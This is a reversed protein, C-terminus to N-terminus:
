NEGLDKPALGFLHTAYTEHLTGHALFYDQDNGAQDPPQQIKEVHQVTAVCIYTEVEAMPDNRTESLISNAVDPTTVLSFRLDVLNPSSHSQILVLPGSQDTATRVDQIEGIVIVPRGNVLAHEVELSFAPAENSPPYVQHEWSEDANWASRLRTLASKAQETDAITRAKNAAEQKAEQQHKNFWVSGGWLVTGIFLVFIVVDVRFWKRTGM